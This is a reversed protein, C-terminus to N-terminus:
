GPVIVLAQCAKLGASSVLTVDGIVLAMELKRQLCQADLALGCDTQTIFATDIILDQTTDFALQIQVLGPNRRRTICLFSTSFPSQPGAVIVLITVRFNMAYRWFVHLM